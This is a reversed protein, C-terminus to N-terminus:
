WRVPTRHWWALAAVARMWRAVDADAALRASGPGENRNEAATDELNAHRLRALMM